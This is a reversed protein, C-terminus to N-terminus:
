SNPDEEGELGGFVAIENEMGEVEKGVAEIRRALGEAKKRARRAAADEWVEGEQGKRKM